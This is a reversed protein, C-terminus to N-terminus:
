AAKPVRRGRSLKLKQREAVHGLTPLSVVLKRKKQGEVLVVGKELLAATATLGNAKILARLGKEEEKSFLRPRGRGDKKKASVKVPKKAKAKGKKAKAKKAKKAPKTATVAVVEAPQVSTEAAPAVVAVVEGAVESVEQVDM